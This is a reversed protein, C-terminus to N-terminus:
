ASLRSPQEGLEDYIEIHWGALWIALRVYQGHM